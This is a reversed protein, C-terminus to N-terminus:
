SFVVGAYGVVHDTDGSVEGSDTYHVIEAKTAGLELAAVMAITTPMIGCMSIHQGTVTDYLGQPDLNEIYELAMHDKRSASKRPEYHTMDTSAVILVDKKYAKIANALLIGTKECVDFPIRSIVLPVIALNKQLYQLFPVQVELSHEHQHAIVDKEVPSSAILEALEENIPVDGLPMQWVGEAMMSVAAGQGHHNPGLIIVDEPITVAAFTEGAVGGSYVYGAHPCMIALATKKSTEDPILDKLTNNLIQPDGPYFQDSVVPARLM